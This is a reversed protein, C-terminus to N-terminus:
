SEAGKKAKVREVYRRTAVEIRVLDGEKIFLPVLVEMENELTASKMASSQQQHSVQGTSTVRLEVVDPFMTSVPRGEVTEITVSMEPRLFERADGIIDGSIAVQEYTQPNMFYYDPGERYIYQWNARDLTVQELKEEPRFRREIISGSHLNRFRGHVVGGLKGGGAQYVAETVKHLAGELRVVMGPRLDTAIIMATWRDSYAPAKKLIADAASDHQIL